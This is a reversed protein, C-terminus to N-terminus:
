KLPALKLFKYLEYPMVNSCAGQDCLCERVEVGKIKCTVLFPFLDKCKIPVEEKIEKDNFLTAIFSTRENNYIEEKDKEGKEDESEEEEKTQDEEEVFEDESDEEASEDEDAEESKGESEEDGEDDSDVLQALLDYWWSFSGEENEDEDEEGEVEKSHIINIVGKSNTSSTITVFYPFTTPNPKALQHDETTNRNTLNASVGNKEAGRKNRPKGTPILSGLSLKHSSLHTRVLLNVMAGEKLTINSITPRLQLPMM